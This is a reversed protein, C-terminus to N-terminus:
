KLQDMNAALAVDDGAGVYENAGVDGVFLKRLELHLLLCKEAVM